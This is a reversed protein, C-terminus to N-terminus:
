LMSYFRQDIACPTLSVPHAHVNDHYLGSDNLSIHVLVLPRMHLPKHIGHQGVLLKGILGEIRAVQIYHATSRSLTSFPRTNRNLLTGNVNLLRQEIRLGLWTIM